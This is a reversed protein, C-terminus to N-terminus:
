AVHTKWWTLYVLLAHVTAQSSGPNHSRLRQLTRCTADWDLGASEVLDKRLTAEVFPTLPGRLLELLPVEFGKKSRTMVAAPLMHGFTERLIHKGSGPRLKSASPLSFAFEVVRRDLFPTRVELAHAMSTLDVKHLMDNPLTSLVDALLVANMGSMREFADAFIRDRLSLGAPDRRLAVLADAEEHPTFAALERFRLDASSSALRAFRDYQRFRNRWTGSRSRPLVRWLPALATVAKEQFGPSRWRLEAQHKTYGGFVEDAGDGSVAVTVHHRTRECLMFSPLASSDAFPEDTAALLRPYNEALEDRTLKFTHHESKIHRAVEEAYRTEDYFPDDAYGISFTHLRAHHRVAM